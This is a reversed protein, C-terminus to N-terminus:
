DVPNGDCESNLPTSTDMYISSRTIVSENTIFGMNYNNMVEVQESANLLSLWKEAPINIDKLNVSLVARFAIMFGLEKIDDLFQAAYMGANEGGIVDRLASKCPATWQHLRSRM